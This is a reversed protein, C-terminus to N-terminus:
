HTDVIGNVFSRESRVSESGLHSSVFPGNAVIILNSQKITPDTRNTKRRQLQTRYGICVGKLTIVM